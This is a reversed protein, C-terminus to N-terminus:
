YVVAFHKTWVPNLNNDIVETEGVTKQVAYANNAEKVKLTCQPDSVTLYDLNVLKTASCFLQV